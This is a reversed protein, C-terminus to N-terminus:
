AAFLAYLTAAAATALATFVFLQMTFKGWRKAVSSSRLAHGAPHLLMRGFAFPM